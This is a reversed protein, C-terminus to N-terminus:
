GNNLKALLIGATTGNHCKAVVDTGNHIIWYDVGSDSIGAPVRVSYYM